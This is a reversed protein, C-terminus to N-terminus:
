PKDDGTDDKSRKKDTEKDKPLPPTDLLGKLAEEFELPALTLPGEKKRQKKPQSKTPKETKGKSM